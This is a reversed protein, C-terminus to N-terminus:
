NAAIILQRAIYRTEIKLLFISMTLLPKINNKLKITDYVRNM